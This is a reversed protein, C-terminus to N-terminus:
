YETIFQFYIKGIDDLGCEEHRLFLLNGFLLCSWLFLCCLLSCLLLLSLEEEKSFPGM